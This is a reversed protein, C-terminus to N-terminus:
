VPVWLTLAADYILRKGTSGSITFDTLVGAHVIISSAGLPNENIVTVEQGNTVSGTASPTLTASIGTGNSTTVVRAIRGQATMTILGSTASITQITAPMGVVNGGTMSINGSPLALSGSSVTINGSSVTINGVAGSNPDNSVTVPGTISFNDPQTFADFPM